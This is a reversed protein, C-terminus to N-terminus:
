QISIVAMGFPSENAGGATNFAWQKLAVALRPTLPSKHTGSAVLRFGIWWVYRVNEANYMVCIVV